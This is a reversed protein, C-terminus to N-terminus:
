VFSRPLMKGSTTAIRGQLSAAGAAFTIALGSLNDGMKVTTWSRAADLPQSAQAAKSSSPWAISKLYWYKALPRTIFRYQGAALNRLGFTGQPNPTVPGGLGWVFQPQDKPTNKENHYAGIVIEGPV